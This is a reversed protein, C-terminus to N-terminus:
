SDDLRREFTRRRAFQDFGSREFAKVMAPNDRDCDGRIDSAGSALLHGTGRRVLVSSLGRGRYAPVIGVYAIVATSPNRAAMIVGVVSGHETYALEWWEPRHEMERYDGFDSRAAPLRGRENVNRTIWSDRTGDYTAAIAEVFADDGVDYLSRFELPPTAVADPSMGRYRWRLGDRLLNYGSRELLRVRDAENEQYQPANPPADVSHSLVDAGLTRALEHLENLLERGGALDPDSWDADILVIDTPAPHKPLAWLAGRAVPKDADLGVLCWEPRTSGQHVLSAVYDRLRHHYASAASVSLFADMSAEDATMLTLMVGTQHDPCTEDAKNRPGGGTSSIRDDDRQAISPRDM